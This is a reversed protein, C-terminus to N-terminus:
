NVYNGGGKEAPLFYIKSFERMERQKPTIILVRPLNESAIHPVLLFDLNLKQSGFTNEMLRFVMFKFIKM